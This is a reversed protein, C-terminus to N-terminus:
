EKRGEMGEKMGETWERLMGEKGEYKMCAEEDVEMFCNLKAGEDKRFVRWVVRDHMCQIMGTM